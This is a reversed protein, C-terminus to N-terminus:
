ASIATALEIPAVVIFYDKDLFSVEYIYVVVIIVVSHSVPNWAVSIKIYISVM